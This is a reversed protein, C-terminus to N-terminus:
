DVDPLSRQKAVEILATGTMEIAEKAAKVQNFVDTLRRTNEGQMITGGEHVCYTDVGGDSRDYKHLFRCRNVFPGQEDEDLFECEERNAIPCIVKTRM